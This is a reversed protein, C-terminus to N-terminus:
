NLAKSSVALPQFGHYLSAEWIKDINSMSYGCEHEKKGELAHIMGAVRWASM